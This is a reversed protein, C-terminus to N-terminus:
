VAEAAVAPKAKPPRGRGRKVGVVAGSTGSETARDAKPPRGRPRPFGSAAKAVAAALPDKTKPPRGRSRPSPLEAGSALDSKPKPPRGRGRKAPANTGPKTYYGDVHLLEGNEKMRDLHTSLLSPHDPPLDSNKSEIYNSIASKDAGRAEGLAAIAEMIMEPYPKSDEEAATAM